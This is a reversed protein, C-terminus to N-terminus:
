CTDIILSGADVLGPFFFLHSSRGFCLSAATLLAAHPQCCVSCTIATGLRRHLLRFCFSFIFFFLFYFFGAAAAGANFTAASDVAFVLLLLLSARLTIKWRFM